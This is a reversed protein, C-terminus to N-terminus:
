AMMVELSLRTAATIPRAAPVWMTPSRRSVSSAPTESAPCFAHRLQARSFDLLEYRVTEGEQQHVADDLDFLMARDSDLSDANALGEERAMEGGVRYHRSDQHRFSQGLDSGNG